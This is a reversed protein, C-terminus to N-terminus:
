SGRKGTAERAIRKLSRAASHDNLARRQGRERLGRRRIPGKRLEDVKAALEEPTRYTEIESGLEYLEELGATWETLYCAGLMPAELDRLRSYTLPHRDSARATRVRNVGIAIMAERSVRFYESPSLPALVRGVGMPPAAVPWLRNEVKRVLAAVGHERVTNWQNAFSHRFPRSVAMETAQAGNWGPGRVQFDAGAQLARGLLNRRLLDASGIFTPPESEILPVTRLEAPVWCPMPAHVHPLGARRYLPLAEFEPVWHLAFSRFADPVSRFERVNDCFFNVCPIGIHHLDAIAAPEVQCPYLYGLFFDIPRRGHEGRVFALVKEWTRTRWASLDNGAPYTLGEAWDVDPVEVAEIEAERCGGLFYTRWFEYAPLPHHKRSQLCSVLVRV